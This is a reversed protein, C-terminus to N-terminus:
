CGASYFHTWAVLYFIKDISQTDISGNLSFRNSEPLIRLFPVSWTWRSIQIHCSNPGTDWIKRSGQCKRTSSDCNASSESVETNRHKPRLLPQKWKHQACNDALPLTNYSTNYQLSLMWREWSTANKNYYNNQKLTRVRNYRYSQLSEEQNTHWCRYWLCEDDVCTQSLNPRTLM